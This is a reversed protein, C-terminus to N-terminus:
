LREEQVRMALKVENEHASQLAAKTQTLEQRLLQLINRPRDLDFRNPGISGPEPTTGETEDSLAVSILRKATNDLEQKVRDNKDYLLGSILERLRAEESLAVILRQDLLDRRVRQAYARAELAASTSLNSMRIMGAIDREHKAEGLRSLLMEHGGRLKETLVRATERASELDEFHRIFTAEEVREAEGIAAM